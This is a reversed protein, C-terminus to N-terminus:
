ANDLADAPPETPFSGPEGYAVVVNDGENIEYTGPDEIPAGNVVVHVSSGGQAQMDGLRDSAFEVGWMTFFQGLTFSAPDDAEFHIIGDPTHTHLPSHYGTTRDIGIDAPVLVPEGEVFVSLLAHVHYSEDGVPPFGAATVAEQLGDQRPPWLQRPGAGDTGAAPREVDDGSAGSWLLAAGAVLVATVLAGTLVRRRNAGGRGARARAKGSTSQKSEQSKV